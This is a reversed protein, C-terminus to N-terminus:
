GKGGGKAPGKMACFGTQALLRFPKGRETVYTNVCINFGDPLSEPINVSGEVLAVDKLRVSKTKAPFNTSFWKEAPGSVLAFVDLSIAKRGENVLTYAWSLVGGRSPINDPTDVHVIRVLEPELQIVGLYVNGGTYNFEKRELMYGNNAWIELLYAGAVFEKGDYRKNLEFRGNPDVCGQPERGYCDTYAVFEIGFPGQRWLRMNTYPSTGSPLPEDTEDELVFGSITGASASLPVTAALVLSLFLIVFLKKKM